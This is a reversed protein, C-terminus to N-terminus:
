QAVALRAARRKAQTVRVAHEHHPCISSSWREPFPLHLMQWCWVCHTLRFLLNM